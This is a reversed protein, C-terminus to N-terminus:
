GKGDDNLIDRYLLYLKESDYLEHSRRATGTLCAYLTDGIMAQVRVPQYKEQYHALRTCNDRTEAAMYFQSRLEEEVHEQFALFVDNDNKGLELKVRADDLMTAKDEMM